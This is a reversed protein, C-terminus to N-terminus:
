RIINEQLQEKNLIYNGLQQKKSIYGLTGTLTRSKM